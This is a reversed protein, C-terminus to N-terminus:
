SSYIVSMERNGQLTPDHVVGELQGTVTEELDAVDRVYTVGYERALHLSWVLEDHTVSYGAHCTAGLRCM